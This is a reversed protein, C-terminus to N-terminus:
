ASTNATSLPRAGRRSISGLTSRLRCRSPKACLGHIRGPGLPEGHSSCQQPPRLPPIHRLLTGARRLSTALRADARSRAWSTCVSAPFHRAWAPRSAEKRRGAGCRLHDHRPRRRRWLTMPRGSEHVPRRRDAATTAAAGNTCAMGHPSNRAVRAEPSPHASSPAARPLRGPWRARGSGAGPTPAVRPPGAVATPPATIRCACSTTGAVTTPRRRAGARRLRMRTACASLVARLCTRQSPKRPRASVARAAVRPRV